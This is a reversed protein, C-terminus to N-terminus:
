IHALNNNQKCKRGQLSHFCLRREVRSEAHYCFTELAVSCPVGLPERVKRVFYGPVPKLLHCKVVEKRPINEM